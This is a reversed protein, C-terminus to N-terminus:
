GYHYDFLLWFYRELATTIMTDFRMFVLNWIEIFRDGNEDASGPPDGAIETGHDFFIESCPGCPGTDCMSWFNDNTDIRIIKEDPLNAVKKWIDFAEDDTHYITVLLKGKPLKVVETLFM